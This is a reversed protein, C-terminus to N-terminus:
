VNHHLQACSRGLRLTVAIFVTKKVYIIGCNELRTQIHTSMQKLKILLRMFM